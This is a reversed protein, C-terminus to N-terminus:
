IGGKQIVYKEEIERLKQQNKNIAEAILDNIAKRNEKHAQLINKGQYNNNAIYVLNLLLSNATIAKSYEKRLDEYMPELNVQNKEKKSETKKKFKSFM